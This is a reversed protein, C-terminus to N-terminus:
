KPFKLQKLSILPYPVYFSYCIVNFLSLQKIIKIMLINEMQLKRMRYKQKVQMNISSQVRPKPSLITIAKPRKSRTDM